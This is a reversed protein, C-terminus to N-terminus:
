SRFPCGQTQLSRVVSSAEPYLEGHPNTLPTLTLEFTGVGDRREKSGEGQGEDPRTARRRNARDEGVGRFVPDTFHAPDFLRM